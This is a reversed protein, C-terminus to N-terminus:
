RFIAGWTLPVAERRCVAAFLVGGRVWGSEPRSDLTAVVGVRNGPASWASFGAEAGWFCSLGAVLPMEPVRLGLPMEPAHLGVPRGFAATGQCLDGAAVVGRLRCCSRRCALYRAGAPRWCCQASLLHSFRLRWGSFDGLRWMALAIDLLKRVDAM